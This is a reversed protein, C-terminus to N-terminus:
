EFLLRYFRYLLTEETQAGRVEQTKQEVAPASNSEAPRTEGSPGEFGPTGGQEPPRSFQEQRFEGELPRQEFKREGERFSEPLRQGDRPGGREFGEPPEGRRKDDSGGRMGGCQDPNESCFARCTEESNCGGPGKFDKPSGGREGGAGGGFKSCEEFHSPDSCYSGCSEESSCGGPGKREEGGRLGNQKAFESCKQRNAENECSKRCSEPSDCGLTSKAKELLEPNGPGGQPGGGLGRKQAFSQCRTINAEQSCLERCTQESSCGLESQAATVMEQRASDDVEKHFGKQKAFSVCRERNAPDDCFSRCQSISACNGLEAVPFTVGHKKAIEEQDEQARIVTSFLFFLSFILVFPMLLDKLRTTM